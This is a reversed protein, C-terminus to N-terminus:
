LTWVGKLKHKTFLQSKEKMQGKSAAWLIFIVFVLERNKKKLSLFMDHRTRQLGYKNPCNAKRIMKKKGFRFM